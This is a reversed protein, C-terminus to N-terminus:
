KLQHLKTKINAPTNKVLTQYSDTEDIVLVSTEATLDKEILKLFSGYENAHFEHIVFVNLPAGFSESVILRSSLKPNANLSATLLGNLLYDVAKYSNSSPKLDGSVLWIISRTLPTVQSIIDTM